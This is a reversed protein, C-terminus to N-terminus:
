PERDHDADAGDDGLCSEDVEIPTLLVNPRGSGPQRGHASPGGDDLNELSPVEDPEFVAAAPVRYEDPEFLEQSDDSPGTDADDAAPAGAEDVPEVDVPAVDQSVVPAQPADEAVVEPAVESQEEIGLEEIVDDAQEAVRGGEALGAELAEEEAADVAKVADEVVHRSMASVASVGAFKPGLDLRPLDLWERISDRAEVSGAIYEADFGAGHDGDLYSLLDFMHGNSEGLSSGIDFMDGGDKAYSRPYGTFRSLYDRNGYLVSDVMGHRCFEGFFAGRYVDDMAFVLRLRDAMADLRERTAVDLSERSGVTEGGRGRSNGYTAEGDRAFTVDKVFDITAVATTVANAGRSKAAEGIEALDRIADNVVEGPRMIDVGPMAENVVKDLAHFLGRNADTRSCSGHGVLQNTVDRLAVALDRARADGIADLDVLARGDSGKSGAAYAFARMVDPVRGADSLLGETRRAIGTRINGFTGKSVFEDVIDAVNMDAPMEGDFEPVMTADTVEGDLIFKDPIHRRHVVWEGDAEVGDLAHDRESVVPEEPSGFLEDDEQEDAVPAAEDADSVPESPESGSGADEASPSTEDEAPGDSGGRPADGDGRPADGGGPTEPGGASPGRRSKGRGKSSHAFLTSEIRAFDAEGGAFMSYAAVLDSSVCPVEVDRWRIHMHCSPEISEDLRRGLNTMEFNLMDPSIGEARAIEYIAQMDDNARSRIRNVNAGPASADSMAHSMVALQYTALTTASEPIPKGILWSLRDRTPRLVKNVFTSGVSGLPVGQGEVIGTRSRQWSELKDIQRNMLKVLAEGRTLGDKKRTSKGIGGSLMFGITVGLATAFGGTVTGDGQFLANSCLMRWTRRREIQAARVRDRTVQRRVAGLHTKRMRDFQRSDFREIGMRMRHLQQTGKFQNSAQSVPRGDFMDRVYRQADRYHRRYYSTADFEAGADGPASDPGSAQADVRPMRQTVDADDSVADQPQSETQPEEPADTADSPAADDPADGAEGSRGGRPGATAEVHRMHSLVSDSHIEPDRDRGLRRRIGDMFDDLSAM